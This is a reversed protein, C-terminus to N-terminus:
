QVTLTGFDRLKQPNVNWFKWWPKFNDPVQTTKTKSILDYLKNWEDWEKAAICGITRGPHHLRFHDRGTADDIDDYPTTDQKDLRFEDPKRQQELIDYNGNPIADGFPKGGSEVRIVISQGTDLDRVTLLGTNKNYTGQVLLGSPDFANAPNNGVYTYYNIGGNFGIPDASAFRGTAPDYYRARYYSAPEDVIVEQRQLAMGM